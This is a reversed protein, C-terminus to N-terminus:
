KKETAAAATQEATLKADTEKMVTAADMEAKTREMIKEHAVAAIDNAKAVVRELIENGDKKAQALPKMGMGVRIKDIAKKMNLRPFEKHLVAELHKFDIFMHPYPGDTIEEPKGADGVEYEGTQKYEMVFIGAPMDKDKPIVMYPIPSTKEGPYNPAEYLMEPIFDLKRNTATM